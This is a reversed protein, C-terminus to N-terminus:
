RKKLEARLRQSESRPDFRGKKPRGGSRRIPTVKSQALKAIRDIEEAPVRKSSTGPYEYASIGGAEIMRKLTKVSVSLEFAARKLTLMKPLRNPNAERLERLDARLEKLFSEVSNKSM